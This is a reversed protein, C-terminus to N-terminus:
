RQAAQALPDLPPGADTVVPRGARPLEASYLWAEWLPRLSENTYNSALGTFDDTVATGHRPGARGIAFCRLSTTM